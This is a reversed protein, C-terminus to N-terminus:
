AYTQGSAAVSRVTTAGAKHGSRLSKAEDLETKAAIVLHRQAWFARVLGDAAKHMNDVDAEAYKCPSAEADEMDDEVEEGLPSPQEETSSCQHSDSKGSGTEGKGKGARKSPQTDGNGKGKSSQAAGRALPFTEM